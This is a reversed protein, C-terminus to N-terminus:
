MISDAGQRGLPVITQLATGVFDFVKIFFGSFNMDTDAVFSPANCKAFPQAM